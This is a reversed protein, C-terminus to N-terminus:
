FFSFSSNMGRSSALSCHALEPLWAGNPTSTSCLNTEYYTRAAICGHLQTSVYSEERTMRDNKGGEM